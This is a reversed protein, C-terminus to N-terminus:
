RRTILAAVAVKCCDLLIFPAVGLAWASWGSFAAGTGVLWLRLWCAGFTYIVAVGLAGALMRQKDTPRDWRKLMLTTATVAPLFGVLYGATPGLLAKVGVSGAFVPLGCVGFSLYEIVALLGVRPGLVMATLLVGFVQLTVPVPNGPLYFRVHACLAIIAAACTAALVAKYGTLEQTRRLIDVRLM